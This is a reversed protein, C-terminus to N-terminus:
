RFRRGIDHSSSTTKMDAASPIWRTSHRTPTTVKKHRYNQPCCNLHECQNLNKCKKQQKPMLETPVHLSTACIDLARPSACVWPSAATNSSRLITKERALHIKICGKVRHLGMPHARTVSEVMRFGLRHKSRIPAFNPIVNQPHALHPITLKTRKNVM